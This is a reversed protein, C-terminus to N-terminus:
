PLNSSRAILSPTSGSVCTRRNSGAAGPAVFVDPAGERVLHVNGDAIPLAIPVVHHEGVAVRHRQHEARNEHLVAQSAAQAHVVAARDQVARGRGKARAQHVHGIGQGGDPFQAEVVANAAVLREALGHLAIPFTLFQECAPRQIRWTPCRRRSRRNWRRQLKEAIVAAPNAALVVIQALGVIGAHQGDRRGHREALGTGSEGVPPLRELGQGVADGAGEGAGVLVARGGHNAGTGLHIVRLDAAPQQVELEMGRRQLAVPAGCM